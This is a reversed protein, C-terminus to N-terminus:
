GRDVRSFSNTHCVYRFRKMKRKEARREAATKASEGEGLTEEEEDLDPLGMDLEDGTDGQMGDHVPDPSTPTLQAHPSPASESRIPLAADIRGSEVHRPQHIGKVNEGVCSEPNEVRNLPSHQHPTGFSTTTLTYPFSKQSRLLQPRTDIPPVQPRHADETVAPFPEFGISLASPRPTRSKNSQWTAHPSSAPYASMRPSTPPSLLSSRKEQDVVQM